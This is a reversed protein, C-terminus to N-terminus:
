KLHSRTLHLAFTICIYSLIFHLHLAFAVYICICHLHLTFCHLHLTICHLAFLSVINIKTKVSELAVFVDIGFFTYNMLTTPLNTM